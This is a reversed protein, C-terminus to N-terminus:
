KGSACSPAEIQWIVQDATIPIGSNTPMEPQVATTAAGTTTQTATEANRTPAPAAQTSSAIKLEVPQNVFKLQDFNVSVL